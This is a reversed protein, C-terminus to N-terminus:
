EVVLEVTIKPQATSNLILELKYRGFRDVQSPDKLLVKVERGNIFKPVFAHNSVRIDTIEISADEVPILKVSAENSSKDFVLRSPSVKGPAQVNGVLALEIRDQTHKSINELQVMLTSRMRGFPKGSTDVIARLDVDKGAKVVSDEIEAVTCGCSSGVSVIRIDTSGRNSLVFRTPFSGYPVDGLDITSEQVELLSEKTPESTVISLLAFCLSVAVLVAGVVGKM